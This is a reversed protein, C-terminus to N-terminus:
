GGVIPHIIVISDGNSIATSGFDKKSIQSSNLSVILDPYTYKSEEILSKITMDNRWKLEKGNVKIM